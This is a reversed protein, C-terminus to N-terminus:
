VDRSARAICWVEIYEVGAKHRLVHALERVTSGTTMVDDVIAIRRYTIPQQLDFARHLNQRRQHASLSSQTQTAKSRTVIGNLLPLSLARALPRALETAQNYGRSRLRTAHLPVPVIGDVAPKELMLIPLLCQALPTALELKGSFKFQSILERVPPAYALAAHTRQFEPPQTLCQGCVPGEVPLAEGCRPCAPQRRPLDAMCGPCFANASMTPSGCLVCCAPSLALLSNIIWDYVM